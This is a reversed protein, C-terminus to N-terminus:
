SDDNQPLGFLLLDRLLIVCFVFFFFLFLQHRCIVVRGLAFYNNSFVNLHLLRIAVFLEILLPHCFSRGSFAFSSDQLNRGGSRTPPRCHFEDQKSDKVAGDNQESEDTDSTLAPGVYPEREVKQVRNHLKLM